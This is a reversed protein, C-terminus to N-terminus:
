EGKEEDAVDAHKNPTMVDDYSMQKQVKKVHEIIKEAVMEEMVLAEIEAIREQKEHYWARLESPDDYAASLKEIMADVRARDVTMQHKKVYDAFLLGMRVRRIAQEEFLMRPFDPIKEDDSHEHGFLRHYMDHKLHEIEQDVLANPVDFTNMALLADFAKERNMSSLRRELERVMNDKIDKKLADVGGENINFLAAFEDNLKPLTGEQVSKVTINFRAPKGALSAEHYAEPFTVDIVVCAGPEVGLIGQEFGEIMQGQGMVLEFDNEKANAMPEDNMFGEFDIVVRDNKAVARTVPSWTKHQDRLKELLVDVDKDTVEAHGVEIESQELEQITFVPFVEFLASYSFDQGSALVGPEIRPTGAPVLANETLAEHLTSQVMERAVEDRVSDSYRQKVLNFPAKGPRFGRINVRNVLNRLRLGVEEEIKETPVSVTVRRELGNLTEVSVAM